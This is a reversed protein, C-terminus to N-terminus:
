SIGCYSPYGLLTQNGTSPIMEVFVCVCNWFSSLLVKLIGSPSFVDIPSSSTIFVLLKKNHVIQRKSDRFNLFFVICNLVSTKCTNYYTNIFANQLHRWKRTRRTFM